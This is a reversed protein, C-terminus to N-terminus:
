ARIPRMTKVPASSHSARGFRSLYRECLPISEQTYLAGMSQALETESHSGIWAVLVLRRLMVFTALESEEENGAKLLEISGEFIGDSHNEVSTQCLYQSFNERFVEFRDRERLGHTSLQLRHPVEAATSQPSYLAKDSSKPGDPRPESM